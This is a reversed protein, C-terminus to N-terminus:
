MHSTRVSQIFANWTTPSFTLPPRTTDKSDRVPVSGASVLDPAWEVCQGGQNDSYSSRIWQTAPM